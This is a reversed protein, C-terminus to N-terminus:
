KDYSQAEMTNAHAEELHYLPHEDIFSKLDTLSNYLAQTWYWTQTQISPLLQAFLEDSKFVIAVAKLTDSHATMLSYGTHVVVGPKVNGIKKNIFVGHVEKV